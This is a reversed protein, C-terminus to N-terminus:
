QERSLDYKKIRAYLTGRDIKLAEATRSINWGYEVLKKEVYDREWSDLSEDGPEREM